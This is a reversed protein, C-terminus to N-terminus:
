RAVERDTDEQKGGRANKRPRYESVGLDELELKVL